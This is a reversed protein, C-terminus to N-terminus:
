YWGLVVIKARAHIGGETAVAMQWDSSEIPQISDAKNSM